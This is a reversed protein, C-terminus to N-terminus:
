VTRRQTRDYLKPDAVALFAPFDSVDVRTGEPERWTFTVTRASDNARQDIRGVLQYTNLFDLFAEDLEEDLEHSRTRPAASTSQESM